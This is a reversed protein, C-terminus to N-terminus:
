RGSSLALPPLLLRGGTGKPPGCEKGVHAISTRAKWLHQPICRQYSNLLRQNSFPKDEVIGSSENMNRRLREALTKKELQGSESGNGQGKFVVITRTSLLDKPQAGNTVTERERERKASGAREASPTIAKCRFCYRTYTYRQRRRELDRLLSKKATGRRVEASHYVDTFPVRQWGM